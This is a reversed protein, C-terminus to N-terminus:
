AAEQPAVAERLIRRVEGSLTREAEAAVQELADVLDVPVRVSLQVHDDARARRRGQKKDHSITTQM